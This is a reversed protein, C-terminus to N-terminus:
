LKQSVFTSTVKLSVTLWFRKGTCNLYLVGQRRIRRVQGRGLQEICARPRIRGGGRIRTPCTFPSVTGPSGALLVMPMPFRRSSQASETPEEGWSMGWHKWTLV